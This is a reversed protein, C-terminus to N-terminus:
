FFIWVCFHIYRIKGIEENDKYLDETFNFFLFCFIMTTQIERVDRSMIKLWEGIIQFIIKIRQVWFLQRYQYCTNWSQKVGEDIKLNNIFIFVEM